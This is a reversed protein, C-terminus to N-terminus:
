PSVAVVGPGTGSGGGLRRAENECFGLKEVSKPRPDGGRGVVSGLRWRRKEQVNAGGLSDDLAISSESSMVVDGESSPELRRPLSVIPLLNLVVAM